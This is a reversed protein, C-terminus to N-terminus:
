LEERVARKKGGEAAKGMQQKEEKRGEHEPAHTPSTASVDYGAARLAEELRELKGSAKGLLGQIKDIADDTDDADIFEIDILMDGDEDSVLIAEGSGRGNGDEDEDEHSYVHQAKLNGGTGSIFAQIAAKLMDQTKKDIITHLNDAKETLPPPPPPPIDLREATHEFPNTTAPLTKDVADVDEPSDLIERCRILAEERQELRTRFGPEGCLRPTNIVMIYHCTSTEKVFLITDTM